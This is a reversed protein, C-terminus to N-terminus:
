GSDLKRRGTNDGLDYDDSNTNSLNAAQEQPQTNQTQNSDMPITNSKAAQDQQQPRPSQNHDDMTQKNSVLLNSLNKCVVLQPLGWAETKTWKKGFKM